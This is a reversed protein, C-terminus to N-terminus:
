LQATFPWGLKPDSQSLRKESHLLFEQGLLKKRENHHYGKANAM